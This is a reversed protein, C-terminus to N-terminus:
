ENVILVNGRWDYLYDSGDETYQTGKPHGWEDLIPNGNEDYQTGIWNGKDDYQQGYFQLRGTEDFLLSGDDNRLAGQPAGSEDLLPNGNEDYQTGLYNGRDDFQAIIPHGEADYGVVQYNAVSGLAASFSAASGQAMVVGNVDLDTTPATFSPITAQDLAGVKGCFALLNELSLNTRVKGLLSSPKISSPDATGDLIANLGDFVTQDCCVVNYLRIGFADDVAQLARTLSQTELVAELTLARDSYYNPAVYLNAPVYIRMATTTAKDTRYMVVQSLDGIENEDTKTSTVFFVTYYGGDNAPTLSLSGDYQTTGVLSERKDQAVSMQSANWALVFVLAVAVLAVAAIISDRVVNRKKKPAFMEHGSSLAFRRQGLAYSIDPQRGDARVVRRPGGKIVVPKAEEPERPAVDADGCAASSAITADGFLTADEGLPPLDNDQVRSSSSGSPQSGASKESEPTSSASAGMIRLFELTDGAGGTTNDTM